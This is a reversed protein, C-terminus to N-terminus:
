MCVRGRHKRARVCFWNPSVRRIKLFVMFPSSLINFLHYCPDHIRSGLGASRSKIRGGRAKGDERGEEKQMRREAKCKRGEVNQKRCEGKQKARKARKYRKQKWDIGFQGEQLEKTKIVM